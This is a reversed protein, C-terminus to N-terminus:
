RLNWLEEESWEVGGTARWRLCWPLFFFRLSANGRMNEYKILGQLLSFRHIDTGESEWQILGAIDTLSADVTQVHDYLGWLFSSRHIGERDYGGVITWLPRWNRRYGEYVVPIPDPVAWSHGDRLYADSFLPWINQRKIRWAKGPNREKRIQSFIMFYFRDVETDGEWFHKRRLLPWLITRKEYNPRTEHVYFPFIRLWDDYDGHARTFIPWADHRTYHFEDNRIKRFVPWLVDTQHFYPLRERKGYFPFFWWREVPDKDLDKITHQFFPWLIYDKQYIGKKVEHGFLPWLRFGEGNKGSYSTLFPWPFSTKVFGDKESRAYLPWLVFRIDDRQFRNILHGYFPFVGGYTKGQATKGWFFPFFYFRKEKKNKYSDTRYFLIFYNQDKKGSQFRSLPYLLDWRINGNTKQLVKSFLPRLGFIERNKSNTYFILPGAAQFERFAPSKVQLISYFPAFGYKSILPTDTGSAYICPTNYFPLLYFIATIIISAWWRPGCGEKLSIRKSFDPKQGHLPRGRHTDPIERLHHRIERM